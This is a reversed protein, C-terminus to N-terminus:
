FFKIGMGTMDSTSHLIGRKGDASVLMRALKSTVQPAVGVLSLFPKLAQDVLWFPIFLIKVPQKRLPM